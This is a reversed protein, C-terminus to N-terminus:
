GREAARAAAAARRETFRSATRDLRDLFSALEERAQEGEAGLGTVDFVKWHRLVPQLVEDYHIRPDYIGATAIEMTKRGFGPISHGPMQFSTVVDTIARL